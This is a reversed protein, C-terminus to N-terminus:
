GVSVVEPDQLISEERSIGKAPLVRVSQETITSYEALERSDSEGVTADVRVGNVSYNVWGPMGPIFMLRVEGTHRPIRLM